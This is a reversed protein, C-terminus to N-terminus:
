AVKHALVVINEAAPEPVIEWYREAAAPKVLERYHAFLMTTDAHGLQLATLAANKHKALHYSAFSHRLVNQPWRELSALKSLKQLRERWCCPAIAGEAGAYPSLWAALNASIDLIRRKRTKAKIATVEIMREALNVEKWALADLESARLGAFLGIAVYPVLELKAHMQAAALLQAAENVTFIEPPKDTLTPREIQAVPNEACYGREVAFSFLMGIDRLYNRRTVLAFQRSDLWDEIAKRHIENMPRDGFTQNFIGFAIRIAKVYRFKKGSKEKSEVFESATDRALKTGGKPQAHRLYFSVAESLSTGSPALRLFSESAEVRQRDSLSFAASGHNRKAVQVQEAYTQAEVKTPFFRRHRKGNLFGADACYSKTGGPNVRVTIRPKSARM